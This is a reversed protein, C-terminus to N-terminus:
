REFVNGTPQFSEVDWATGEVEFETMKDEKTFLYSLIRRKRNETIQSFLENSKKDELLALYADMLDAYSIKQESIQMPHHEEIGKIFLVPNFRELLFPTDEGDCYGHDALVIIVSNDYAHNEKLRNIYQHILTLTAELKQQYTGKEIVNLDRDLDFPVHAGETHVFQFYNKNQHELKKHQIEEYNTRNNWIYANNTEYDTSCIAFNLTEIKAYQKLGYPLYKYLVYKLEQKIFPIWQIKETEEINSVKIKKKGHWVLSDEYINIDYNKEELKHLLPSNHFSTNSYTEFDTQNENWMGSFLFPISDRTFPYASLTDPYYTFDQFTDKLKSQSLVQYFERSDVADVLFILFNKNNSIQNYNQRTVIPVNEKPEFLHETTFLVTIFSTCLMGLIVFSLYMCGKIANEVKWKRCAFVMGIMIVLLVVITIINDIQYNGYNIVNGDLKPLHSILYNGQVYLLFFIGFSVLVLVEFVKKQFVYHSLWYLITYGIFLTILVMGFVALVPKMMMYFDFWMDNRNTAYMLIPEYLLLMFTMAFSVVYAPLLKKM